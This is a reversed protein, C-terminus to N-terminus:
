FPKYLALITALIIATICLYRGVVAGGPGKKHFGIAYGFFAWLLLKGYVWTPLPWSIGLRALMGFGSILLLLLAVGHLITSSRQWPNEKKQVALTAAQLSSGLALILIGYSVVHLTKYVLLDIM